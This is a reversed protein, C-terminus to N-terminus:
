HKIRYVDRVGKLRRIKSQVQKLHEVNIIKIKINVLAEGSKLTKGNISLINTKTLGLIEIIDTLLGLRDEGRIQIDTIYNEGTENGWSVEIIKDPETEQLSLLNKCDSRHVSVGKGKTIYGVIEDGPVPSCCKAFRSHVNSTGKVQLGSYNNYNTTKRPQEKNFQEIVSSNSEVEKEKAEYAERLKTVLNFPNIDGVGVTAFLDELNKLNYRKLVKELTASKSIVGFSYGQKKAEKEVVEKGKEISEERNAKKFWAKIKSKAQNSKAINLWDISPGKTNPSTLVEVIEGTKLCYELTVIKGNIKAGTCRHGVDTHIAYAFDIPTSDSPLSIVDGKPTFVFVEDSFLDIKFGEMFEEADSTEGQWELMERLWSLKSDLSSDGDTNNTEKYKWHAAIGYEATRHMDYTRIQIEFPKGFPGIVTSHLSQYMNPKPMAIYDKFRGPIPKYMTHVIGLAAYCSGIDDVLIRIATLDFIQDINKNKSEMKRYISYFHKPRGEIDAKISVMALHLKLQSIIHNIQEEREARKDSILKVLEYYKTPQLYRLALDELEWKIKSIGLRHALPAFIDLVEKAKEKQKSEPMYKLTRMNHLRDALKILIVRIDRAMALLMKRVNDAQQEEKSKYKIKGLKSVGEVLNAIEVSFLECVQEYTYETDEIVDHLLGAAITSTDLGLEALICAVELPHIIYPEGSERKQNKHANLSFTYAKHIFDVDVNHCNNNIKEILKEIM